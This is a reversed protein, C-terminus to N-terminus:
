EVSFEVEISRVAKQEWPARLSFVIKQPGIQSVKVVFQERGAAGIASKDPMTKRSELKLGKSRSAVEWLYGTTGAGELDLAFEEGKKAVIQQVGKGVAISRM